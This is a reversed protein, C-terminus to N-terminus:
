SFFFHNWCSLTHRPGNQSVLPPPKRVDINDARDDAATCAVPWDHAILQQQGYHCWYSSDGPETGQCQLLIRRTTTATTVVIFVVVVVVVVVVTNKQLSVLVHGLLFFSADKLDIWM